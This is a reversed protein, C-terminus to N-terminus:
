GLAETIAAKLDAVARAALLSPLKTADRLSAKQRVIEVKLDHDGAEDARLYAVDLAALKPARAIRILNKAIDVAKTMDHGVAGDSVVWAERFTRDEPIDVVVSKRVAHFGSAKEWKAIAEDVSGDIVTMISLGGDSRTIAYRM